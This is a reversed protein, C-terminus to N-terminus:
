KDSEQLFHWGTIPAVAVALTVFIRWDGFAAGSRWVMIGLILGVALALLVPRLRLDAPKFRSARPWFTTLAGFILMALLFWHVSFIFSVFGPRLFEALLFVIYSIFATLFGTKMIEKM